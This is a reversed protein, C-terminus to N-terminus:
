KLKESVIKRMTSYNETTMSKRPIIFNEKGEILIFDDSIKASSLNDWKEITEKEDQIISFYNDSLILKHQKYKEEGDLFEYIQTKWKKLILFTKIYNFAVFTFVICCFILFTYTDKIFSYVYIAILLITSVVLTRFSTKTTKSRFYDGQHDKFYIEEFNQRSFNLEIEIIM